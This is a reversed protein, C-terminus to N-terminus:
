NQKPAKKRRKKRPNLIPKEGLKDLTAALEGRAIKLFSDLFDSQVKSIEDNTEQIEGKVARIETDIDCIRRLCSADAEDFEDNIESGDIIGKMFPNRAWAERSIGFERSRYDIIEDKENMLSALRLNLEKRRHYAGVLNSPVEGVILFRSDDSKRRGEFLKSNYEKVQDDDDILNLTFSTNKASTM